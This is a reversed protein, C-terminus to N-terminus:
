SFDLAAEVKVSFNNSVIILASLRRSSSIEIYSHLENRGKHRVTTCIYMHITYALARGGAPARAPHTELSSLSDSIRSVVFTSRFTLGIIIIPSRLSRYNRQSIIRTPAPRLSALQVRLSYYACVQMYVQMHFKAYERSLQLKLVPLIKAVRLM